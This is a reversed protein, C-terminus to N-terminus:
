KRLRQTMFSKRSIWLRFLVVAVAIYVVFEAINQADIEVRVLSALAVCVGITLLVDKVQVHLRVLLKRSLFIAISYLLMSIAFPVHYVVAVAVSLLGALVISEDDSLLPQQTLFIMTTIVPLAYSQEVCLAALLVVLLIVTSSRPLKM